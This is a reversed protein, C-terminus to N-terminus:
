TGGIQALPASLRRAEDDPVTALKAPEEISEDKDGYMCSIVRVARMWSSMQEEDDAQVKLSRGTGESFIDSVIEFSLDGGDPYPNVEADKVTLTGKLKAMSGDEYYHMIGNKKLVFYRRKWSKWNGGEKTLYGKMYTEQDGAGDGTILTGSRLKLLLLQFSSIWQDRSDEDDALVRLKRESKTSVVESDVEFYLEGLEPLMRYCFSTSCDLSGKPKRMTEDEYYNLIGGFSLVFFRRKWSKWGGGEKTLYGSLLVQTPDIAVVSDDGDTIGSEPRSDFSTM